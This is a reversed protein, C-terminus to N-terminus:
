LFNTVTPCSYRVVTYFNSKFQLFAFFTQRCKASNKFEFRHQCSFLFFIPAFPLFPFCLIEDKSNTCFRTRLRRQMQATGCRETLASHRPCREKEVELPRRHDREQRRRKGNEQCKLTAARDHPDSTARRETAHKQEPSSSQFLPKEHNEGQIGFTCFHTFRTSRRM